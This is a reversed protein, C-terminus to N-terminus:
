KKLLHLDYFTTKNQKRVYQSSVGIIKMTALTALIYVQMMISHWKLISFFVVVYWHEM